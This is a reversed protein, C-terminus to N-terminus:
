CSYLNSTAEHMQQSTCLTAHSNVGVESLSLPQRLWTSMALCSLIVGQIELKPSLTPSILSLHNPWTCLLSLPHVTDLISFSTSSGPLLSFPLRLVNMSTHFYSIIQCLFISLIPQSPPIHDVTTVSLPLLQVLFLLLLLFLGFVLLCHIAKM